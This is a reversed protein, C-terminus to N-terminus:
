IYPGRLTEFDLVMMGKHIAVPNKRLALTSAQDRGIYGYDFATGMSAAETDDRESAANFV